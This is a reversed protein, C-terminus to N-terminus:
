EEEITQKGARLDVIVRAAKYTNYLKPNSTKFQEILKDTKLRLLDNNETILRALERTAQSRTVIASRPSAILAAFDDIEKKLQAINEPTKGYDTLAGDLKAAENYIALCTTKVDEDSMNGLQSSSIACKIQLDPINNVQAYVFMCGAMQVTEEIMEEEEKIKQKSAGTTKGQQILLVEEMESLSEGFSQIFSTLVPISSFETSYTGFVKNVARFMSIKNRQKYNM